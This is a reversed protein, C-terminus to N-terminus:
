PCEDIGVESCAAPATKRRPWPISFSLLLAPAAFNEETLKSAFLTEKRDVAPVVFVALVFVTSLFDVVFGPLSDLWLECEATAM